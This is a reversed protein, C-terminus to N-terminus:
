GDCQNVVNQQSELLKSQDSNRFSGLFSNSNIITLNKGMSTTPTKQTNRERVAASPRCIIDVFPKSFFLLFYPLSKIVQPPPPPSVNFALAKEMDLLQMASESTIQSSCHFVNLTSFPSGWRKTTKRTM